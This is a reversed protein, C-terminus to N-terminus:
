PRRVGPPCRRRVPHRRPPARRAPLPPGPRRTIRGTGPQRPHDPHRITRQRRHRPDARPDGAGRLQASGLRGPQGTRRRRPSPPRPHHRLPHYLRLVGAPEAYDDIARESFPRKDRNTQTRLWQIFQSIQMKRLNPASLGPELEPSLDETGSGEAQTSFPVLNAVRLPNKLPRAAGKAASVATVTTRSAM